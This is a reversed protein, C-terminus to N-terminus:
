THNETSRLMRSQQTAEILKRQKPYARACFYCLRIPHVGGTLYTRPNDRRTVASTSDSNSTNRSLTRRGYKPKM